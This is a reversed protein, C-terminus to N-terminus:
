NASQRKVPLVFRYVVAASDQIEEIADGTADDVLKMTPRVADAVLIARGLELTRSLDCDAQHRNPLHAFGFGGAADYFMMVNLLERASAKEPSFVQGMVGGDGGGGEGLADHTVITKVKRPSLQEGVTILKGDKLDGLRYAWTDYMLRANQLTIGTRNKISGIALGDQDSLQAEIMPPVKATWRTVLSKTASTLIPVGLLLRRDDGYRYGDHVIGLDLGGSQMGGIGTGSLGWWSLLVEEAQAQGTPLEPSKANLDLKAATPSYVATWQTGRARGAMTDVDVLEMWNARPGTGGIRWAALAMAVGGFALILLPFTVWAIWPRRLWRNVVFYDLPGLFAIYLIALGAVTGFGVPAVSVFKQGVRQRFAGSLDHYGRTVLRQTADIPSTTGLYPRLLVQLFATRGAWAAMPPQSFDVAVFAVEGLGHATRIVLPLDTTKKGVYAEVKGEIDTLRPVRVVSGPPISISTQVGAFHELPGTEPLRVIEALKGPAFRALAGGPALLEKGANGDCLLVLRGGLEVWRTLAEYRKSDAALERCQQGNGASMVLIDVGDYGFWETPLEDARTLEAVFRASSSSDSERNPFAERIGFPAAGLSVIFEATAPMAVTPSAPNRKMSPRITQEDVRREGDFLSVEIPNGVRGVKTYVVATAREHDPELAALKASATTPVGDSDSVIVQVQDAAGQGAGEVQVVVPTWFGVKFHNKIGLEVNKIRPGANAEAAISRGGLIAVGVLTAMTLLFQRAILGVLPVSRRMWFNIQVRIERADVLLVHENM